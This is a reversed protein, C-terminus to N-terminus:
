QKKRLYVDRSFRPCHPHTLAGINPDAIEERAIFIMADANYM